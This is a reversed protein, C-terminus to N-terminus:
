GHDLWFESKVSFRFESDPVLHVISTCEFSGSEVRPEYRRLLGDDVPPGSLGETLTMHPVFDDTHPLSLDFLDLGHLKRRLDLIRQCPQVQLWLVPSPLFSRVPGYTVQFSEELRLMAALRDVVKDIAPQRFPQTLTIHAESYGHSVPDLEERFGNVYERVSPPPYIALTGYRYPRKWPEWGSESERNDM